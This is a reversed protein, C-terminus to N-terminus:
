RRICTGVFGLHGNFFFRLMSDFEFGLLLSDGELAMESVDPGCSEKGTTLDEQRSGRVEGDSQIRELADVWTGEFPM